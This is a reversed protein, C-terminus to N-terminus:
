QALFLFLLSLPFGWVSFLLCVRGRGIVRNSGPARLFCMASLVSDGWGADGKGGDDGKRGSWDGDM